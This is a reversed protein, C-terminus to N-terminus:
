KLIRFSRIVANMDDEFLNNYDAERTAVTCNIVWSMGKDSLTAQLTHNYHGVSDLSVIKFIVSEKNDITTRIYPFVKDFRSKYSDDLVEALEDMTWNGTPSPFTSIGLSPNYIGESLLGGFFRLQTNPSLSQRAPVESMAAEWNTPYSISFLGNADTYTTFNSPVVFESITTKKQPAGRSEYARMTIQIYLVSASLILFAISFYLLYRRRSRELLAIILAIIAAIGAPMWSTGIIGGVLSPLFDMFYLPDDSRIDFLPYTSYKGFSIALLIISMLILITSILPQANARKKPTQNEEQNNTM